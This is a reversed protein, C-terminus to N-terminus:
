LSSDRTFRKQLFFLAIGVIGAVIGILIANTNHAALGHGVGYPLAIFLCVSLLLLISGFFSM